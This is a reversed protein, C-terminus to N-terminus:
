DQLTFSVQDRALIRGQADLARAEITRRGLTDFTFPLPFNDLADRSVGLTHRGEAVYMVAAVEGRTVARLVLPNNLLAGEDPSTLRVGAGSAGLPLIHLMLNARAVEAGRQDLGQALIARHGTEQLQLRLPFGDAGQTTDGVPHGGISWQVRAVTPHADLSLVDGNHIKDGDNFNRIAMPLPSEGPTVVISLTAQGVRQNNKDFASATITRRGLDHFTYRATFHQDLREAAGLLFGDASFRVHHVQPAAEVKFWVANRASAGPAPSVFRISAHNQGGDCPGAGPPTAGNFEWHWDESPVTRHFDFRAANRRLWDYVGWEQTNLDLAHGSQHNSYGPAAALSCNNCSCSTYCSYLYQQEANSRFGSIIRLNVGERSAAQRMKFFADATSSEVPKGDIHILDIAFARGQEYGTDSRETCNIQGAKLAAVPADEEPRSEHASESPDLEDPEPPSDAVCGAACIAILFGMLANGKMM